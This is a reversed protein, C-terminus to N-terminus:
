LISDGTGWLTLRFKGAARVWTVWGTVALTRVQPLVSMGTQGTGFRGIKRSDRAKQPWFGVWRGGIAEWIGGFVM